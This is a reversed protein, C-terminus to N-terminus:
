GSPKQWEVNAKVVIKEKKEAAEEKVHKEQDEKVEEDNDTENQELDSTESQKTATQKKHEEEERTGTIVNKAEPSQEPSSKIEESSNTELATRWNTWKSGQM